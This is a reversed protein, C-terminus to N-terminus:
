SIQSIVRQKKGEHPSGSGGRSGGRRGRRGETGSGGGAKRGKVCEMM